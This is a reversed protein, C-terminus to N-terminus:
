PLEEQIEPATITEAVPIETHPEPPVLRMIGFFHERFAPVRRAIELYCAMLIYLFAGAGFISSLGMFFIWPVEDLDGMMAFQLVVLLLFPLAPLLLALMTAILLRGHFHPWSFRKRCLFRAVPLLVAVVGCLLFAPVAMGAINMADWPGTDASWSTALSVTWGLAVLLAPLVLACLAGFFATPASRKALNGSILWLCSLGMATMLFPEIVSAATAWVLEALIFLGQIVLAPLLAIWAGATRNRASLALPFLLLWPLFPIAHRSFPWVVTVAEAEQFGPGPQSEPVIRLEGYM